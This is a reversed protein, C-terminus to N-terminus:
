QGCAARHCGGFAALQVVARALGLLAVAGVDHLKGLQRHRGVVAADRAVLGGLRALALLDVGISRRHCAVLAIEGGALISHQLGHAPPALEVVVTVNEIAEGGIQGRGLRLLQRLHRTHKRDRLIFNALHVRGTRRREEAQGPRDSEPSGFGFALVNDDADDVAADPGLVGAEGVAGVDVAIAGLVGLEAVLLNRAPVTLASRAFGEGGTVAVLLQDARLEEVRTKAAIGADLGVERVLEVRRAVGVAVARM